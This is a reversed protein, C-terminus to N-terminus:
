KTHFIFSFYVKILTRNVIGKILFHSRFQNVDPEISSEIFLVEMGRINCLISEQNISQLYFTTLM